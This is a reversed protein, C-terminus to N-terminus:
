TQKRTHMGHPARLLTQSSIVPSLLTHSPMRSLSSLPRLLLVKSHVSRGVAAACETSSDKLSTSLPASASIESVNLKQQSVDEDGTNCPTTSCRKFRTVCSACRRAGSPRAEPRRPQPVFDPAAGPSDFQLLGTPTSSVADSQQWPSIVSEPPKPKSSPTSSSQGVSPSEAPSRVFCRRAGTPTIIANDQQPSAESLPPPSGIRSNMPTATSAESGHSPSTLVSSKSQQANLMPTSRSRQLSAGCTSLMGADGIPTRNETSPQDGRGTCAVDAWALLGLPRPRPRKGSAVPPTAPSPLVRCTASPPQDLAADVQMSDERETSAVSETPSQRSPVTAIESRHPRLTGCSPGVSARLFWPTVKPMCPSIMSERSSPSSSNSQINRKSAMARLDPAAIAAVVQQLAEIQVAMM